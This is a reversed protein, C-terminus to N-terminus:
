FSPINEDFEGESDLEEESDLEGRRTPNGPRESEGDADYGAAPELVFPEDDPLPAMCSPSRDSGPSGTSMCVKVPLFAGRQTSLSSSDNWADTLLYLLALPIARGEGLITCPFQGIFDSLGNTARLPMHEPVLEGYGWVTVPIAIIILTCLKGSQDDYYSIHASQYTARSGLANVGTCRGGEVYLIMNIHRAPLTVTILSGSELLDACETKAHMNHFLSGDYWCVTGKNQSVSYVFYYDSVTYRSGYFPFHGGESASACPLFFLILVLFGCRTMM